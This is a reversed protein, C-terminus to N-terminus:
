RAVGQLLRLALAEEQRALKEQGIARFARALAVHEDAELSNLAAAQRLLPLAASPEEGAALLLEARLRPVWPLGPDLAAAEDVQRRAAELDGRELDM